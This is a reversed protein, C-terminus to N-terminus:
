YKFCLVPLLVHFSFHAKPFNSEPMDSMVIWLILLCTLTQIWYYRLSSTHYWLSYPFRMPFPYLCFVFLNALKSSQILIAGERFQMLLYISVGFLDNKRVLMSHCCLWLCCICIPTILHLNYCFWRYFEVSFFTNSLAFLLFCVHLFKM